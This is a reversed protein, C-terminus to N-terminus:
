SDSCLGKFLVDVTTFPLPDNSILVYSCLSYLKHGTIEPFCLRFTKSKPMVELRFLRTPLCHSVNLIYEM